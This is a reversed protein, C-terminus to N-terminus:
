TAAIGRGYYDSSLLVTSALLRWQGGCSRKGWLPLHPGGAGGDPLWSREPIEANWVHVQADIRTM